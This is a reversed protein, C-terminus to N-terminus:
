PQRTDAKVAGHWLLDLLQCAQLCIDQGLPLSNSGSRGLGCRSIKIEAGLAELMHALYMAGKFCDDRLRPDCSVTRMRVFERLTRTLERDIRSSLQSVQVAPAAGRARKSLGAPLCGLHKLSVRLSPEM